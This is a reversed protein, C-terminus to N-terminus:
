YPHPHSQENQSHRWEVLSNGHSERDREGNRFHWHKSIHQSSPFIPSNEEMQFKSKYKLHERSCIRSKSSSLIAVLAKNIFYSVSLSIWCTESSRLSYYLYINKFVHASLKYLEQEWWHLLASSTKGEGTTGSQFLTGWQEPSVSDLALQQLLSFSNGSVSIDYKMRSSFESSLYLANLTCWYWM